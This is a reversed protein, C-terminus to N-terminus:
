RREIDSNWEEGEKSRKEGGKGSRKRRKRMWKKEGGRRDRGGERKRSREIGKIWGRGVERGGSDQEGWWERAKMDVGSQGGGGM